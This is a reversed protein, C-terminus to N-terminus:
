EPHVAAVGRRDPAVDTVWGGARGLRLLADATADLQHPTHGTPPWSVRAANGPRLWETLAAIPDAADLRRRAETLRDILDDLAPALAAANGGCMAAVLAPNSAAVRTADRYSGAGLTAALGGAEGRGAGPATAAALAAATLHPLHSVQAVATDHEHPTAPVVRVELRTLLEAVTLWDDLRSASEVAAPELCLAWACGTFLGPDSAAFGSTEKGAMPHGGVYRAGPLRAAVLAYVPSKVSTVDTLIGRYGATALEDLVGPVAPLPVALVVVEARAAAQAVSEAVECRAAAADTRTAPAADYGITPVGAAGLARLLSGGILGLGLVAVTLM